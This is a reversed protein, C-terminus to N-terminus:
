GAGGNLMALKADRQADNLDVPCADLWIALPDNEPPEICPTAVIEACEATSKPKGSVISELKSGNIGM